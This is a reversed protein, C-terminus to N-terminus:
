KRKKAVKRQPPKRTSGRRATQKRAAGGTGPLTMAVLNEGVTNIAYTGREAKDVYGQSHANILTQAPRSVRERGAQRCAELLDDATIVDKRQAEPAVFRYYYAVTAVFQNDSAPNKMAVFSKIDNAGAFQQQDGKPTDPTGKLPAPASRPPGDETSLGLKERSWRLIRERTGADFPELAAIIARVADLDDVSPTKSM